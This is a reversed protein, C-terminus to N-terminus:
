IVFNRFFKVTLKKNVRRGNNINVPKASKIESKETKERVVLIIQPPPNTFV